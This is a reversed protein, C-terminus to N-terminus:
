IMIVRKAYSYLTKDHTVMIITKGRKHMDCILNMVMMKNEEDLSGTPEDCIIIDGQKLLLRAIAVRQQQGGSCEYIYKDYTEEMGVESLKEEILKRNNKREKKSPYVLELNYGVTKNDILAFNQFLYSINKSLLKAIKSDKYDIEQDKIFVKGQDPKDLLGIINCLTSKGSGSKGSIIVFEGEDIELNFDHFVNHHYYSKSINELKVIAM